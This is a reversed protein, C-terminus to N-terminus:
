PSTSQLSTSNKGSQVNSLGCAQVAEIVKPADELTIGRMQFNARTTIDGVGQEDGYPKMLEGLVRLQRSTIEGNPVQMGVTRQLTIGRSCPQRCQKTLLVLLISGIKEGGM